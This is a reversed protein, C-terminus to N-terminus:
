RNYVSLYVDFDYCETFIFYKKLTYMLLIDLLSINFIISIFLQYISLAISINESTFNMYSYSVFGFEKVNYQSVQVFQSHYINKEITFIFINFL